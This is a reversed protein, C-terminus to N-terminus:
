RSAGSGRGYRLSRCRRARVLMLAVVVLGIEAGLGCGGAREKNRWATTCQPDPPMGDWDIKGDGDNDLGDDCQPNEKTSLADKCGPDS